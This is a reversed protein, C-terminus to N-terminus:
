GVPSKSMKWYLYYMNLDMNWKVLQPRLFSRNVGELVFSISIFFYM